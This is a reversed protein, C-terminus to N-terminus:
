HKCLFKAKNHPEMHSGLVFGFLNPLASWFIFNASTRCWGGGGGGRSSSVLLLTNTEYNMCLARVCFLLNHM